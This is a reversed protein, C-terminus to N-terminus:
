SSAQPKKSYVARNWDEGPKTNTQEVQISQYLSMSVVNEVNRSPNKKEVLFLKDNTTSTLM